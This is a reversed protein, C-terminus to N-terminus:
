SKEHEKVFMMYCSIFNKIINHFTSLAVVTIISGASNCTLAYDKDRCTFLVKRKTFKMHAHVCDVWPAGLIVDKHKLLSIYFDEKDM